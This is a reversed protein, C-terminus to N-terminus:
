YIRYRLEFQLNSFISNARVFTRGNLFIDSSPSHAYSLALEFDKYNASVGFLYPFYYSDPLAEALSLEYAVTSSGKRINENVLQIPKILVFGIKTHVGFNQRKIWTFRYALSGQLSLATVRIRFTEAGDFRQIYNSGTQQLMLNSEFSSRKIFDFNFGVGTMRSTRYGEIEKFTGGVSSSYKGSWGAGVLLSFHRSFQGFLTTSGVLFLLTLSKRV